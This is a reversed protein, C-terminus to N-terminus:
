VARRWNLKAGKSFNESCWLPQLNRLGWCKKFEKDKPDSYGFYNIPVHHDISWKGKGHGYNDWNMGETFQKELHQKLESVKYGVLDEWHCGNKSSGVRKLSINIACSLSRSLKGKPTSLIRERSKKWAKKLSLKGSPTQFWLKVRVMEKDFNNKRYQRHWMVTKEHNNKCYQKNYEAAVEMHDKYYAKRYEKQCEKCKRSLGDKKNKDRHFDEELKLLECKVCIKM